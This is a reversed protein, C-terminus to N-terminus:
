KIAKIFKKLEGKGINADGAYGDSSLYLGGMLKWLRLERGYGNQIYQSAEGNLSDFIGVLDNLSQIASEKNEGLKLIMYDDFQNTTKMALYYTGDGSLKLNVFGMRVSALTTTKFTGTKQIQADAMTPMLIM